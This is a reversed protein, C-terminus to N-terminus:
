MFKCFTMSLPSILTLKGVVFKMFLSVTPCRGVEHDVTSPATGKPCTRSASKIASMRFVIKAFDDAFEVNFDFLPAILAITLIM